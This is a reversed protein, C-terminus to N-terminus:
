LEIKEIIEYKGLGFATSKGIHLPEAAKIIPLFPTLEGEFTISGGIGDMKMSTAQRNSYRKQQQWKLDKSVTKITRALPMIQNKDIDVLQDGYTKWLSELRRIVARIFISFDIDRAFRGKEKLRLPTLMDITLQIPQTKQPLNELTSLQFPIKGPLRNELKQYIQQGKHFVKELRMAPRKGSGNKGGIGEKGMRNVAYVFYPLQQIYEGFLILSFIFREEKRYPRSIKPLWEIVYPHPISSLNISRSTEKKNEFIKAYLCQNCLLCETCLQMRITCVTKKLAHGLAGRLMSGPFPPIYADNEWICEFDFKGIKM